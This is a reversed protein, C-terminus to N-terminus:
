DCSVVLRYIGGCLVYSRIRVEDIIYLLMPDSVPVTPLNPLDGEAIGMQLLEKESVVRPAFDSSNVNSELYRISAYEVPLCRKAALPHFAANTAESAIKCPVVVILLDDTEKLSKTSYFSARFSLSDMHTWRKLECADYYVLSVTENGERHLSVRSGSCDQESITSLRFRAKLFVRVMFRLAPHIALTLQLSSDREELTFANCFLKHAISM